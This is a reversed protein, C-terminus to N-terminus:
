LEDWSTAVYGIAGSSMPSDEDYHFNFHGNMKAALTVSQGIFDYTNNGGGGLTFTASPAYIQGVFASNAGFDLQTNTPLGFYKFNRALGTDNVIGNGGVSAVPASVYLSLDGVKGNASTIRIEDKPGFSFGGTVQLVVGPTAVYVGGDLTTVKWPSSNNLVYKYTVGNIKYNGPVPTLWIKGNTNPLTADPFSANADQQHHNQPNTQIGTQGSTVYGKDGVSGGSGVLVKGNAATHVTGKVKGNGINVANTAASMSVVDGHDLANPANYLGGPFLFTNSSQFSDTNINFGKFDVSTSVVMAGPYGGNGKSKAKVQVKRVLTPTSVPGPVYGSSVIVPFANTAIIVTGYKTAGITNTKGYRGNGLSVWGNTALKSLTMGNANLHAMAEEVGAEAVVMAQNWSQARAVSFRQTRAMSLYSAMLIGLIVCLLLTVVLISGQNAARRVLRTKM